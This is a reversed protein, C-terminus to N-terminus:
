FRYIYGIQIGIIEFPTHYLEAVKHEHIDNTSLNVFRANVDAANHTVMSTHLKDTMYRVNVYEFQAFGLLYSVSCFLTHGEDTTKHPLLRSLAIEAGIEGGYIFGRNKQLVESDLPRCGDQDQPDAITIKSRFRATGIQPTIYGRIAKYNGGLIFKSGLLMKNLGSSYTVDTITQSGDNFQYTQAVTRSSYGGINAKFEFSIPVSFFPSYAATFGIGVATSMKPMTSKVPVDLPLFIGVRSQQSFTIGFNGLLFIM